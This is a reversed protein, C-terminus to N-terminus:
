VGVFNAIEEPSMSSDCRVTVGDAGAYLLGPVTPVGYQERLATLQPSPRDTDLFHVTLKNEQAVTHLKPIFRNCYPCSARGLFLIAGDQAALLDAAQEVSVSTFDQAYTHFNM